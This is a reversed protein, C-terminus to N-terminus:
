ICDGLTECGTSQSCNYMICGDVYLNFGTLNINAYVNLDQYALDVDFIRVSTNSIPRDYEDECYLYWWTRSDDSFTISKNVYTGNHIEIDDFNVNVGYDATRSSRNYLSCNWDTHNGLDALYNVVTANIWVSTTNQISYVSPVLETFSFNMSIGPINWFMRIDFIETQWESKGLNVWVKGDSCERQNFPTGDTMYSYNASLSENYYDDLFTINGSAYDISYNGDSIIVNSTSNFVRVTSNVVRTNALTLPLVYTYNVGLVTNNFKTDNLILYAPTYNLSYNNVGLAEGYGSGWYSYNVCVPTGDKFTGNSIMLVEGTINNVSYNSNVAVQEYSSGSCNYIELRETLYTNGLTLNTGNAWIYGSENLDTANVTQNFLTLSDIIVNRGALRVETANILTISENDVIVLIPTVTERVVNNTINQTYNSILRTVVEETYNDWCSQYDSFTYNTTVEGTSTNYKIQLKSSNDSYNSKTFNIYFYTLNGPTLNTRVYTTYNGDTVNTLNHDADPQGEVYSASPIFYEINLSELTEITPTDEEIVASQTILISLIAILGLVISYLIARKM